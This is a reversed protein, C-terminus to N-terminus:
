SHYKSKCCLALRPCSGKETHAQLKAISTESKEIKREFMSLEDVAYQRPRKRSPGRDDFRHRTANKNPQKGKWSPGAHRGKYYKQGSYSRKQSPGAQPSRQGSELEDNGTSDFDDYSVSEDRINDTEMLLHEEEKSTLLGEATLSSESM